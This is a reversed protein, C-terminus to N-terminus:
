FEPSYLSRFAERTCAQVVARKSGPNRASLRETMLLWRVSLFGATMGFRRRRRRTLQRVEKTMARIATTRTYYITEGGRNEPCECIARAHTHTSKSYTRRKFNERVFCAPPCVVIDDGSACRRLFGM